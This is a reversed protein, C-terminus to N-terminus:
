RRQLHARVAGVRSAAAAGLVVELEGLRTVLTELAPPTEFEHAMETYGGRM